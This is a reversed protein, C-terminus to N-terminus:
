GPPPPPPPTAPPAASADPGFAPRPPPGAVPRPRWERPAPRAEAAPAAFRAPADERPPDDGAASAMARARVALLALAGAGALAVLGLSFLVVSRGSDHAAGGAEPAPGSDWLSAPPGQAAAPASLGLALILVLLASRAPM